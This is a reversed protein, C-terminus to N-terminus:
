AYRLVYGTLYHVGQGLHVAHRFSAPQNAANDADPGDAGANRM